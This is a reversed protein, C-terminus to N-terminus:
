FPKGGIFALVNETLSSSITYWSMHCSADTTRDAEVVSGGGGCSGSEGRAHEATRGGRGVGLRGSISTHEFNQCSKVGLM